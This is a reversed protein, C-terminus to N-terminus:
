HYPLLKARWCPRVQLMRSLCADHRMGSDHLLEAMLSCLVDSIDDSECSDVPADERKSLWEEEAEVFGPAEDALRVIVAAVADVIAKPSDRCSARSPTSSPSDSAAKFVRRPARMIIRLASQRVEVFFNYCFCIRSERFNQAPNQQQEASFLLESMLNLIDRLRDVWFLPDSDTIDGVMNLFSSIQDVRNSRIVAELGHLM